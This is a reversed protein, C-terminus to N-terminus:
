VANIHAIVFPKILRYKEKEDSIVGKEFVEFGLRLPIRLLTLKTFDVEGNKYISADSILLRAANSRSM